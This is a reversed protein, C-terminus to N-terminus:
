QQNVPYFGTIEKIAELEDIGELKKYSHFEMTFTANGSTRTRLEKSYGLLKSLPVFARM